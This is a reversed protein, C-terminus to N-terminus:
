TGRTAPRDRRWSSGRVLNRGRSNGCGPATRSATNSTAKRTPLTRSTRSPTGPSGPREAAEKLENALRPGQALEAKLFAIAEERAGPPGGPERPTLLDHGTLSSRGSEVITATQLERGGAAAIAGSEVLYTRSPSQRGFNTKVHALVRTSAAQGGSQTPDVGLLLVSRAAAALGISGGLRILPDTSQGKNLHSVLVVASGTREAMAALPALALRVSQDKFPDIVRALHSTLPDVIVVRAQTREVLEGLAPVSEPLMPQNGYGEGPLSPFHVRSLDAGALMLRPVVVHEHSDEATMLVADSPEGGLRGATLDAALRVTLLSKGLGPNGALVTIAGLPITEAVLWEVHKPELQDARVSVLRPGVAL